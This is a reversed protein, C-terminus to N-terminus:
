VAMVTLFRLLAAALLRLLDRLLSSSLLLALLGFDLLLPLFSDDQLLLLLM